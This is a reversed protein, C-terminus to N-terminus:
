PQSRKPFAGLNALFLTLFDSEALRKANAFFNTRGNQYVYLNHTLHLEGDSSGVTARDGFPKLSPEFETM